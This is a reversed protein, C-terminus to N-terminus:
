SSLLKQMQERARIAAARTPRLTNSIIKETEKLQEVDQTM